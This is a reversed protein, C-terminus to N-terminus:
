SAPMTRIFRSYGRMARDAYDLVFYAVCMLMVGRIIASPSYLWWRLVTITVYVAICRMLGNDSYAAKDMLRFIFSCYVALLIIGLWSLYFYGYYPLIGGNYHVFFQHTYDCLQSDSVLNGGLFMSLTWRVFLYLRMGWGTFNLTDLFTMSCHYAAFATDLALHNTGLVDAVDTFTDASLELRARQAGIASMLLFLMIAPIAFRRFSLKEAYLSFIVILILQLGTVRGGYIFNQVAFLAALFVLVGRCLTSKGSYWFGLIILITSYEYFTTPSGRVGKVDPRKFGLIMVLFLVAVIATVLLYNSRNDAVISRIKQRISVKPAAVLLFVSFICLINLGLVGEQTGAYSTFLGGVNHTLYLTIIVSYNCYLICSYITFLYWSRRVKYVSILGIALTIYSVAFNYEGQSNLLVFPFAFTAALVNIIHSINPSGLANVSTM